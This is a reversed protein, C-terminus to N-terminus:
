TLITLLKPYRALKQYFLPQRPTQKRLLVPLQIYTVHNGYRKTWELPRWVVRFARPSDHLPKHLCM